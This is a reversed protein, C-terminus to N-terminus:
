NLKTDFYVFALKLILVIEDFVLWISDPLHVILGHLLDLKGAIPFNVFHKKKLDKWDNAFMRTGGRACLYCSCITGERWWRYLLSSYIDAYSVVNKFKRLSFWFTLFLKWVFFLCGLIHSFCRVSIFCQSPYSLTEKNM